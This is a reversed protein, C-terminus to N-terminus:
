DSSLPQPEIGDPGRRGGVIVRLAKSGGVVRDQPRRVVQEHRRGFGATGTLDQNRPQSKIQDLLRGFSKAKRPGRHGRNGGSIVIYGDRGTRPVDFAMAVTKRSSGGSRKLEIRARIRDGPKAAMHRTRRFPGNNLAWRVRDIKLERVAREVEVEIDIATFEIDALDQRELEYLADELEFVSGFSIDYKSTFRNSRSISWPRGSPMRVGEITWRVFSSGGGIQDFTSDINSFAHAFAIYGLWSDHRDLPQVADTESGLRATGTDLATTDQTIPVTPPLEGLQARIAALRDRDVLGVPDTPSALKYPGLPDDVVAHVSARSAGLQTPGNFFFPHGFALAQGGCVYTATGIGALSVDGYSLAAAFADGPDIGAVPGGAPASAGPTVVLPLNRKRVEKRVKALRGPLSAGSVALPMKLQTLTAEGEAEARRAVRKGLAGTLTIRDPSSTLAGLKAAPEGLVSMMDPDAPTVGGISSGGYSFGYAIAGIVEGDETYVPSGSMGASIGGGADIVPGSTDVIVLDRGPAIADPFVGLVDVDFSEVTEGQRVTFGVAGDGPTLTDPSVTDACEPLPVSPPAAAAPAAAALALSAAIAATVCLRPM